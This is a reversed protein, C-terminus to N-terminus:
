TREPGCERSAQTMCDAMPVTAELLENLEYLIPQVYMEDLKRRAEDSWEQGADAWVRELAEIVGQLKAFGTSFQAEKV